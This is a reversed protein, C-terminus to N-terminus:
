RSCIVLNRDLIVWLMNHLTAWTLLLKTEFHCNPAALKTVKLKTNVNSHQM